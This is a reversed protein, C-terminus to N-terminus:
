QYHSSMSYPLNSKECHNDAIPLVEDLVQIGSDIEEPTITLPPCIVLTDYWALVYLGKAMAAQSVQSTMLDSKVYKDAKVDFPEKTDRNKVLELAWFHGMGRIDGISVHRDGLEQLRSALHDSGKQPIGSQMLKQYEKIAPPIASLALAHFAYTHGHSLVNEEFFDAIPQKTMTLGVPTYAGTVGKATTVIDPEVNWHEIAFVKGTRFWGSMVEDMVLLVNHTDCIRRLEPYYEPPPVIRGNTGVIPEVFIAAVNSEEKIQYEVYKACQLNCSGYKLGFPCRYCYPDPAFIVGPLNFRAQEAWWRRPDGTLAVSAATSGHYSKYRSFIKYRPSQVTRIMKIAAENAETGSTSFFFKSLYKPVISQLAEVAEIAIETAFGPAIYPLKKAQQCINEIIASNGHGLNSCMLQSSFDLYKKGDDDTFYVGEANQIVKPTKWGNQKRWTGYSAEGFRRIREKDVMTIAKPTNIGNSKQVEM